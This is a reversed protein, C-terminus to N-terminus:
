AREKLKEETFCGTCNKGWLSVTKNEPYPKLNIYGEKMLNKLTSVSVAIGEVTLTDENNKGSVLDEIKMAEIEV